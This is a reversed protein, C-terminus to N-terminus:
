EERRRRTYTAEEAKEAKEAAEPYLQAMAETVAEPEAAPQEAPAKKGIHVIKGDAIGIHGGFIVDLNENM